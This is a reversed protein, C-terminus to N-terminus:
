IRLALSAARAVALAEIVDIAVFGPRAAPGLLAQSEHFPM